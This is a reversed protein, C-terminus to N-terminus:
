ELNGYIKRYVEVHLRAITEPLHNQLIRTRATAALKRCLNPRDLMQCLTNRTSEPNMPDFLRGTVGDTILDPIGGVNSAAVPLGAAMAELIVMPLNEELSPLALLTAKSLYGALETHNVFGELHCWSHQNAFRIVESAYPTGPDSKGLISVEFPFTERLPLIAHLFALQNKNPILDGVLLILPAAASMTREAKLLSSDVANSIHWTQRASPSVLSRTHSSLCIVGDTLRLALSELLAAIGTFSWLKVRALRALRRMNGHITLLNPFGSFIACLACDRETGHGHVLDPHVIRLQRRVSLINGLYGLKLWAWSPVYVSHFFINPALQVPTPLRRRACSLVHVEIEGPLAAFGELLSQPSTGFSPLEPSYDRRDERNDTTLIAVRLM